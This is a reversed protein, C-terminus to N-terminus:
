KPLNWGNTAFRAYMFGGFIIYGIGKLTWWGFDSLKENLWEKLAEKIVDKDIQVNRLDDIM